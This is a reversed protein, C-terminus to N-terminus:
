TALALRGIGTAHGGAASDTYTELLLSQAQVYSAPICAHVLIQTCKNAVCGNQNAMVIM